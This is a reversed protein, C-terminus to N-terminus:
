PPSCREDTMGRHWNLRLRLRHHPPRSRSFDARDALELLWPARCFEATFTSWKKREYANWGRAVLQPEYWKLAEAFSGPVTFERERWVTVGGRRTSGDAFEGYPQAGPPLGLSAFLPGIEGRIDEILEASRPAGSLRYYLPIAFALAAGGLVIAAFVLLGGRRAKFTMKM